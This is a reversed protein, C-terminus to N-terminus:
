EKLNELQDYLEDKTLGDLNVKGGGHSPTSIRKETPKIKSTQLDVLKAGVLAKLDVSPNRMFTKKLDEKYAGIGEIKEFTAFASDFRKGADAALLPGIKSNQTKDIVKAFTNLLKRSAPDAVAALFDEMTEFDEPKAEADKKEPKDEADAPKEGDKVKQALDRIRKQARPSLAAFEEATFEENEDAGEEGKDEGGDNDAGEEPKEEGDPAGDEGKDDEASAGPTDGGSNDSLTRELEGYLDEVDNNKATM